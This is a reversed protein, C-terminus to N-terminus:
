LLPMCHLVITDAGSTSTRQIPSSSTIYLTSSDVCHPMIYHSLRRHHQDRRTCSKESNTTSIMPNFLQEMAPQISSCVDDFQAHDVWYRAAYIAFPFNKMTEKDVQDDFALLVSLSAQALTTHASRPIIHYPSLQEGARALRESTLYEKVSFHSFQVVRSSDVNIITILSSCTSLIAEEPDEQRWNVDYNPLEGEDFQIALVEALEEARLPQIPEALCQFLRQAYAQRERPMRLLIREYTEDLSMPLEDLTRRITTPLRDLPVQM